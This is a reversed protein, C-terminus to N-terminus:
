VSQAASYVSRRLQAWPSLQLKNAVNSGQPQIGKKGHSNSQGMDSRDVVLPVYILLTILSMGFSFGMIVEYGYMPKDDGVGASSALGLGLVQLSAGTVMLYYPAVNFRSVLQGAVATAVPSCLLLPLLHIGAEFPSSGNVAQFRQPLNILVTM